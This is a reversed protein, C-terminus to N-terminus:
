APQGMIMGSRRADAVLKRLADVQEADGFRKPLVLTSYPTLLFLFHEPTESVDVVSSWPFDARIAASDQRIAQADFRWTLPAAGVPSAAYLDSTIRNLRSCVLSSYIIMACMSITVALATEYDVNLGSLVIMTLAPALWYLWSTRTSHRRVRAWPSQQQRDRATLRVGEFVVENAM